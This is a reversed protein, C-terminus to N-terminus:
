RELAEMGGNMQILATDSGVGYTKAVATVQLLVEPALLHMGPCSYQQAHRCITTRGLQICSLADNPDFTGNILHQLNNQSIRWRKAHKEKKDIPFKRTLLFLPRWRDVFAVLEQATTVKSLEEVYGPIVTDGDFTPVIPLDKLSM